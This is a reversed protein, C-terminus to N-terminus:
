VFVIRLFFIEFYYKQTQMVRLVHKHTGNLSLPSFIIKFFYSFYIFLFYMPRYFQISQILNIPSFVTIEVNSRNGQCLVPDMKVLMLFGFKLSQSLIGIQFKLSVSYKQFFKFTGTFGTKQFM